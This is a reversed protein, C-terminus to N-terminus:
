KLLHGIRPRLYSIISEQSVGGKYMEYEGGSIGRPFYIFSPISRIKFKELKDHNEDANLLIIDVKDELVRKLELIFPKIKQCPQCWDAYFMVFGPREIEM